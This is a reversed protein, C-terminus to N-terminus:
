PASDVVPRAVAHGRLAAVHADSKTLAGLGGKSILASTGLLPRGREYRGAVHLSAGLALLWAQLAAHRQWGHKGLHVWPGIWM